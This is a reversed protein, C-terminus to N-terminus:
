FALVSGVRLALAPGLSVTGAVWGGSKAEIEAYASSASSLRVDLRQSTLVGAQAAESDFRQGKPQLWLALRPSWSLLSAPGGLPLDLFTCDIGPLAIRGNCFANASAVLGANGARMETIVGVECGFPTLYHRLGATFEVHEGLLGARWPAVGYLQPRAFNVLSLAAQLRLYSQEAPTLQSWLIYRNIGLGGPHVGRAAYPEEPRHLDYAWASFDWGVVDRQDVTTEKANFERTEEDAESTTNFWLYFSMSFLSYLASPEIFPAGHMMGDQLLAEALDVQAEYGAAECRVLEEPHEAKLNELAEDSVHYVNLQTIDPNFDYIGDYSFIGRNSLVARHFEEHMWTIGFPLYNDLFIRGLELGTIAGLRAVPSRIGVTALQMCVGTAESFSLALSKSQDMTPWYASSGSNAPVDALVLDLRFLPVAASDTKAGRATVCLFAAAISAAVFVSRVFEGM